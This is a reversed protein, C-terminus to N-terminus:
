TDLEDYEKWESGNWTQILLNESRLEKDVEHEISIRNTLDKSTQIKLWQKFVDTNVCRTFAVRRNQHQSRQDESQGVAGSNIHTCRCASDTKNRHQGGKGSGRYYDWRFDKKTISIILEKM